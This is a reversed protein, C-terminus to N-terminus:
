LIVFRSSLVTIVSVWSLLAVSFSFSCEVSFQFITNFFNFSTTSLSFFYFYKQCLQNKAKCTFSVNSWSENMNAEVKHTSVLLLIEVREATSYTHIKYNKKIIICYTFLTFFEDKYINYTIRNVVTGTLIMNKCSM